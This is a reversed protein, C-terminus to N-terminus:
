PSLGQLLFARTLTFDEHHVLHWAVHEVQTVTNTLYAALQNNQAKIILNKQLLSTQFKCAIRLQLSTSSKRTDDKHDVETLPRTKHHRELRKWKINPAREFTACNKTDQKSALTKVNCLVAYLKATSFTWSPACALDHSCSPLELIKTHTWVGSAKIWYHAPLSATLDAENSLELCCWTLQSYRLINWIMRGARWVRSCLM